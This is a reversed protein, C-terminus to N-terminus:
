SNISWHGTISKAHREAVVHALNGIVRTMMRDKVRIRIM